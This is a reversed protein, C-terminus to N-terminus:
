ADRGEVSVSVDVGEATSEEDVRGTGRQVGRETDTYIRKSLRHAEKFREYLDNHNEIRELPETPAFEAKERRGAITIMQIPQTAGRRSYLKGDIEFHDAINYNGYLYNFFVKDTDGLRNDKKLNAGLILVARGSDKM